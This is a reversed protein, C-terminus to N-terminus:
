VGEGAKGFRDFMETTGCEFGQEFAIRAIQEIISNGDAPLIQDGSIGAHHITKAHYIVLSKKHENWYRLECKKLRDKISKM